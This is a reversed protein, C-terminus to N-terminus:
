PKKPLNPIKGDAFVKATYLIWNLFGPIGLTIFAANFHFNGLKVGLITLLFAALTWLLTQVSKGVASDFFRVVDQGVKTKEFDAIVGHATEAAVQVVVPKVGAVVANVLAPDVSPAAPAVPQTAAPTSPTVVQGPTQASNEGPQM